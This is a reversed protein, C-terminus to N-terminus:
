QKSNKAADADAAQRSNVGWDYEWYSVTAAEQEAGWGAGVPAYHQVLYPLLEGQRDFDVAYWLFIRSLQMTGSSASFKAGKTPNAVWSAMRQDMVADLTGAEYARDYLDPCSASACVLCAHAREDYYLARVKAHEIGDLSVREGAITGVHTKWIPKFWGGLGMITGSVLDLKGKAAADAIVSVCLANYGNIWTALQDAPNQALAVPDLKSLYELYRAFDPDKWIADYDVVTTSIGRLTGQTVHRQLVTTWLGHREVSSAPAPAAGTADIDSSGPPTPSAAGVEAAVNSEAAKAVWAARALAEPHGEPGYDKQANKTAVSDM